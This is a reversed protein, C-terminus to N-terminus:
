HPNGHLSELAASQNIEERAAQLRQAIYQGFHNRYGMVPVGAVLHLVVGLVTVTASAGIAPVALWRLIAAAHEIPQQQFETLIQRLLDTIFVPDFIFWIATGFIVVAPCIIATWALINVVVWVCNNAQRWYLQKNRCAEAVAQRYLLCFRSSKSVSGSMDQENM